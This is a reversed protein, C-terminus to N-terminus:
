HSSIHITSGQRNMTNNGRRVVCGVAILQDESLLRTDESTVVDYCGDNGYRYINITGYDWEIWIHGIFLLNFHFRYYPFM